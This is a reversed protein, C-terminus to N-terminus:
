YGSSKYLFLLTLEYVGELKIKKNLCREILPYIM